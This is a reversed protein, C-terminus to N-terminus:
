QTMERAQRRDVYGRFRYLSSTRSPRFSIPQPTLTGLNFRRLAYLQRPTM